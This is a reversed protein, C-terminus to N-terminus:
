LLNILCLDLGGPYMYSTYPAYGYVEIGFPYMSEIAHSGGEIEVRAAAMETGEIDSWDEGVWEGDILIVQGRKAIINVYSVPFSDPALFAYKSRWQERPIGLTMSPDGKSLPKATQFGEYDQGVLYQAVAIPSHARVRFDKKTTFEVFDGRNLVVSGHVNSTFSVRNANSGSLVRYVNPEDYVPQTRAAFVEKGWAEIPFMTEELHDCAWRYYPIFTCDHGAIVAVKGSATISTGTLDYDSGVKCYKFELTACIEGMTSDKFCDSTKDSEHGGACSGPAGSLLQLVEGQALTTNFSDGPALAPISVGDASAVTYATTKIEVKTASDEVGVIAVFGSTADIMEEDCPPQEDGGCQSDFHLTRKLLWSPRSMVLYNGTFTHTPLLLSADNTYSYIDKGNSSVRYDLPNFQYATVPVNSEIRYAGHEVKVSHQRSTEEENDDIPIGTLEPIRDLEISEVGGPEIVASKVVTGNSEIKIKASVAQPNSIVVAFPFSAASAESELNSGLLSNITPVAWYECGIYSHTEQAEQCLDDCRGLDLGCYMGRSADCNEDRKYGSGDDRCVILDNSNGCSKSSPICKRCGLGEACVQDSLRCNELKSLNGDEDCTATWNGACVIAEKGQPCTFKPADEVPEEDIIPPALKKDKCAPDIACCFAALLLARLFVVRRWSKDSMMM